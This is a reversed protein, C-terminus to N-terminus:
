ANDSGEAKTKRKGARGLKEQIAARIFDLRAEGEGLKTDIQALLEASLPLTIRKEFLKARGM